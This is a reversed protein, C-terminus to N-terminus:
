FTRVLVMSAGNLGKHRPFMDLGYDCGDDGSRQINWYIAPKGLLDGRIIFNYSNSTTMIITSVENTDGGASNYNSAGFVATAFYYKVSTSQTGDSTPDLAGFSLRLQEVEGFSPIFWDDYLGGAENAAKMLYWGSVTDNDGGTHHEFYFRDRLNDDTGIYDELGKYASRGTQFADKGMSYNSLLASNKGRDSDSAWILRKWGQINSPVITNSDIKVQYKEDSYYPDESDRWTFSIVEDDRTIRTNSVLISNASFTSGFARFKGDVSLVDHGDDGPIYMYFAANADKKTEYHADDKSNDFVEYYIVSSAKVDTDGEGVKAQLADNIAKATSNGANGNGASIASANVPGSLIEYFHTGDNSYYFNYSVDYDADYSTKSSDAVAPKQSYFVPTILKEEGSANSKVVKGVYKASQEWMAYLNTIPANFTQTQKDSFDATTHGIDTIWGAFKYGTNAVFTNAYLTQPIGIVITQEYADGSKGGNLNYTVDFTWKAYYTKPGTLEASIITVANGEFTSSSYWGGFTCNERTVDTPLNTAKGEEYETVNGANITGGNKELTVEANWKAYFTLDGTHGATNAEATTLYPGEGSAPFSSDTYWGRFVYGERTITGSGSYTETPLTTPASATYIATEGSLVGGNDVYNIVNGVVVVGPSSHNDILSSYDNNTIVSADTTSYVHVKNADSGINEIGLIEVIGNMESRETRLTVTATKGDASSLAINALHAKTNNNLIIDTADISTNNASAIMGRLTVFSDGDSGISVEAGDKASVVYQNNEVSFSAKGEIGVSADDSMILSLDAAKNEMSVTSEKDATNTILVDAGNTAKIGYDGTFAFSHGAFNIIYAEDEGSIEAGPGKADKLLTIEIGGVKAAKCSDIAEQLTAFKDDQVQWVKEEPTPTPQPPDFYDDVSNTCSVFVLLATLVTLITILAKKM